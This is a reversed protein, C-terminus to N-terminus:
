LESIYNVTSLLVLRAVKRDSTQNKPMLQINLFYFPNIKMERNRFLLLTVLMFCRVRDIESREGKEHLM